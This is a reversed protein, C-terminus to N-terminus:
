SRIDICVNSSRRGARFARGDGEVATEAAIAPRRQENRVALVLTENYNSGSAHVVRPSFVPSRFMLKITRPPHSPHITHFSRRFQIPRERLLKRKPFPFLPPFTFTHPLKLSCRPLYLHTKSLLAGLMALRGTAM